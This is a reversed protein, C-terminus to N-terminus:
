NVSLEQKYDSIPTDTPKKKRGVLSAVAKKAEIMSISVSKKEMYNLMTEILAVSDPPLNELEKSFVETLARDKVQKMLNPIAHMAKETQREVFLDHFIAVEADILIKAERIQERRFSMNEKALERLHDVNVFRINPLRHVEPAINGPVALDVLTCSKGTQLHKLTGKCIVDPQNGLCTILLDFEDPWHQLKELQHAAGNVKAAIAEAKHLSRNFVHVQNLGAKKLFESVLQITQGAGVLLVKLGSRLNAKRMALSVVSVPKDGISTTTFVRKAMQVTFRMLLRINDGTLGKQQCYTFSSRLQRLVEREGVVMSDLSGAVEFIHRVAEDGSYITWNGIQTKNRKLEYDIFPFPCSRALMLAPDATLNAVVKFGLHNGFNFMDASGTFVYMIRNCTAMYFLEEVEADLKRQRLCATINEEDGPIIHGAIAELPLTKHTATIIHFTNNERMAKTAVRLYNIQFRDITM